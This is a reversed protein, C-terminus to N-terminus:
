RPRSGRRISCRPVRSPPALPRSSSARWTARTSCSPADAMRSGTPRAPRPRWCRRPPHRPSARTAGSGTSRTRGCASARSPTTPGTSARRRRTPASSCATSRRPSARRSTSTARSPRTTPRSRPPMPSRGPWRLARVAEFVTVTGVVNVRAGLPPDARVFPVQLAALHILHTVGRDEMTGRLQALDTVDGAVRDLGALEEDDLLLRLRHDSGGLDYTTVGCGEDLLLRVAWSGICGYAGTVLFRQEASM